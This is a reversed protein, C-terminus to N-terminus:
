LEGKSPRSLAGPDVHIDPQGHPLSISETSGSKANQWTKLAQTITPTETHTTPVSGGEQRSAMEEGVTVMPEGTPLHISVGGEATQVPQAYPNVGNSNPANVQNTETEQPSIKNQEM